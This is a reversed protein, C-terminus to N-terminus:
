RPSPLAPNGEISFFVGLEAYQDSIETEEDLNEFDIVSILSDVGAWATWSTSAVAISAVIGLAITKHM